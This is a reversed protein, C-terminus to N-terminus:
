AKKQLKGSISDPSFQILNQNGRHQLAIYTFGLLAVSGDAVM